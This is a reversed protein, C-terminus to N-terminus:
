PEGIVPYKDLIEKIEEKFRETSPADVAFNFELSNGPYDIIAIKGKCTFLGSKNRIMRLTLWEETSNFGAEDATYNLLDDLELYFRQFEDTRLNARYSAKFSLTELNIETFLWNADWFDLTSSDNRAKINVALKGVEGKLLM